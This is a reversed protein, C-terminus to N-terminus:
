NLYSKLNRIKAFAFNCSPFAQRFTQLPKKSSHIKNRFPQRFLNETCLMDDTTDDLHNNLLWLSEQYGPSLNAFIHRFCHNCILFSEGKSISKKSTFLLFEAFPHLPDAIAFCAAAFAIRLSQHFTKIIKILTGSPKQCWEVQM